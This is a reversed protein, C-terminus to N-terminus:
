FRTLIEKDNIEHYVLRVDHNDSLIEIPVSIVFVSSVMDALIVDGSFDYDVVVYYLNGEKGKLSCIKHNTYSSSHNIKVFIIGRTEYFSESYSWSCRELDDKLNKWGTEEYIRATEELSKSVYIVEDGSNYLEGGAKKEYPVTYVINSVTNHTPTFEAEDATDGSKHVGDNCGSLMGISLIIIILIIVTNLIKKM